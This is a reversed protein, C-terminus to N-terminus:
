CDLLSGVGTMPSVGYPLMIRVSAPLDTYEYYPGSPAKVGFTICPPALGVLEAM